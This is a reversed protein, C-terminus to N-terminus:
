ALGLERSSYVTQRRSWCQVRVGGTVGGVWLGQGNVGGRLETVFTAAATLEASSGATEPGKVPVQLGMQVMHLGVAESQSERLDM